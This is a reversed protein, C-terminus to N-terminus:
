CRCYKKNWLEQTITFASISFGQILLKYDYQASRRRQRFVTICFIKWTSNILSLGKPLVTWMRTSVSQVTWLCQQYQSVKASLTLQRIFTNCIIRAMTKTVTIYQCRYLKIKEAASWHLHRCYKIILISVLNFETIRTM